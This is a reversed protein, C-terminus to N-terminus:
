GRRRRRAENWPRLPSKRGGPTPVTELLERVVDDASLRQVWLEPKLMLRHALAPM